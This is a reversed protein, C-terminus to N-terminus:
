KEDRMQGAPEAGATLSGVKSGGSGCIIPLFMTFRSNGAKEHAQM